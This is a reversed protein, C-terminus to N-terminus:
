DVKGEELDTPMPAPQAVTSEIELETKQEAAEHIAHMVDLVHYALKGSARHPRGTSIAAAMDSLGLARWNENYSHTLPVEEWDDGGRSIKVPGDFFNPDPVSISGDTGHVEIRPCNHKWVDFSTTITALPGKEFHLMGSIHTPIEVKIKQGKKEGSGVTREDFGSSTMGAVSAVPGFLAVFATLYYPGMDFMPGGGTKYFFEPSPHWGEPGHGLLFATASLPRGIQGDEILKRCTQLGAGLFTDPANGIRLQKEEAVDLLEEAQRREIALPKECYVHKGAKLAAMNVAYHGGPPTLDLVIDISEDHFVEEESLIKSIGVKEAAEHAKEAILDSVAEVQINEFRPINELYVNSVNGCGVVGVKLVDM